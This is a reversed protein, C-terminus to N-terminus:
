VCLRVCPSGVQGCYAAMHLLTSNSSGSAHNISVGSQLVAQLAPINGGCCASVAKEESAMPPSLDPVRLQPNQKQAAAAACVLSPQHILGKGVMFVALLLLFWTNFYM